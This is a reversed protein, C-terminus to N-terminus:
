SKPPLGVDSRVVEVPTGQGRPCKENMCIETYTAARTNWQVLADEFSKATTQPGFCDEGSCYIMPFGDIKRRDVADSGCFPCPLLKTM